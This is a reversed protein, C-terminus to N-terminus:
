KAWIAAAYNALSKQRAVIEDAGWVSCEGVAKNPEIKSTLYGGKKDDFPKNSISINIPGSLLMLNGLRWLYAEHVEPDVEWQSRDIPMIHEIHVESTDPNIELGKDIYRHIKSLIYRVIEKESKSAVWGEFSNVFEEDTVMQEKVKACIDAVVDLEGNYISKATAAFFRESQNAVKGCITFNRLMYSEITSVVLAIDEESFATDAQKMALVVPYFSRAKLTKLAKLSNVLKENQFAVNEGPVAMAHYYAACRELEDLLNKSGKPTTINKSITRYLAKDRTFEHCSNWFHRIYKTPDAKDLTGVMSNWKKQALSIDKSQSFIYNKLLDSTELDRGRANLTEFIVFAEELKTAEMYLVKFRKVFTDYYGDLCEIKDDTESDSYKSMVNQIKEYFFTFAKRMREHSKKKEKNKFNPRGLQINDRFYDNDLANLILHLKNGKSTYRGIYLSTIDSRQVDADRNKTQDYIEEYFLQLTRLFIVSTITRQQGDIIYKYKAKEDDHVVIQGFFHPMGDNDNMASELDDWFDGLEDDGWAYERQYDPIHYTEGLFTQMTWIACSQLAM